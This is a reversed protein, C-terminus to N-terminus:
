ESIRLLQLNDKLAHLDFCIFETDRIVIRRLTGRVNKLKYVTVTLNASSSVM